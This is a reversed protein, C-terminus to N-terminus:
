LQINYCTVDKTYGKLDKGGFLWIDDRRAILEHCYRESFDTLMVKTWHLNVLELVYCDNYIYPNREDNRGGHIIM